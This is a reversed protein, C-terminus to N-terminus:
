AMVPSQMVALIIELVDIILELINWYIDKMNRTKLTEVTAKITCALRALHMLLIIIRM